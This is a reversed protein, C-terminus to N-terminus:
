SAGGGGGGGGGGAGGGGGSGGGSSGGAGSSSFSTSFSTSFSSSFSSISFSGSSFGGAAFSSSGISSSHASSRYWDPPASIIGEFNKAWKKEVGFIVAYPLLKEFLDPTLNQLRYKEATKLYWRFGEIQRWLDNGSNSLRPNLVVFHLYLLLNVLMSSAFYSVQFNETFLEKSFIFTFFIIPFIIFMLYVAKNKLNLAKEYIMKRDSVIEDLIDKELQKMSYYLDMARSKTYKITKTSFTKNGDFLNDLFKKEYDDLSDDQVFNEKVLTLKYDKSPIFFNFRKKLFIIILALLIFLAPTAVFIYLIGEKKITNILDILIPFPIIIFYFLLISFVFGLFIKFLLPMEEPKEEEIKVYGKVALDVITAAWTKKSLGERYIIEMEAPKLDNPPLYQVVISKNHRPLYEKFYWSVLLFIINILLILSGLIFGLNFKIWDRWFASQDVIGKPFGLALTVSEQPLANSTAFTFVNGVDEGDYNKRGFQYDAEDRDPYTRYIKSRTNEIDVNQPLEVSGYINTIPVEYETFLNWYVEDFTDFFGILGHVKYNIEWLRRENTASYYWEINTRGDENRYTFKGWSNPDTKELRNKTYELKQGSDKDIVSIDTIASINKHSISRWGKNYTGNFLYGINESIDITTDTNVKLKAYFSDILYSRNEQAFVYFPLILSFIFSLLLFHKLKNMM